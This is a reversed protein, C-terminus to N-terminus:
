RLAVIVGEDGGLEIRRGDRTLGGQPGRAPHTALLLDRGTVEDPLAVTQPTSSFNLAILLREDEAERTYAFV